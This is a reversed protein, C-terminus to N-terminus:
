EKIFRTQITENNKMCRILYIGPPLSSIDFTIREGKTHQQTLVISGLTNIISISTNEQMYFPLAITIQNTAPNPFVRMDMERKKVDDYQRIVHDNNSKHLYDGMDGYDDMELVINENEGKTISYSLYSKVQSIQYPIDSPLMEYTTQTERLPIIYGNNTKFYETRVSLEMQNESFYRVEYAIQNFNIELEMTDTIAILTQDELYHVLIGMEQFSLAVEDISSSFLRNYTGYEEIEEEELIMDQNIEENIIQGIVNNDHDYLITGYVSTVAKGKKHRFDYEYEQTQPYNITIRLFNDEDILFEAQEIIPYYSIMRVLDWSSLSDLNICSSVAYYTQTKTTYTVTKKPVTTEDSPNTPNTADVFITIAEANTVVGDEFYAFLAYTYQGSESIDDVYVLEDDRQILISQINNRHSKEIRYYEPLETEPHNWSLTVINNDIIHNFDRPPSYNSGQANSFNVACFSIFIIILFKRM